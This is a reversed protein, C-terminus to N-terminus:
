QFLMVIWGGSWGNEERDSTVFAHGRAQAEPHTASLLHHNAAIELFVGM